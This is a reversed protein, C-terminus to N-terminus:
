ADGLIKRVTDFIGREGQLIYDAYIEQGAAPMGFGKDKWCIWIFHWGAARAGQMDNEPSDGVFWCDEAAAGIKREFAHFIEPDPKFINIDGSAIINEEPIFKELQLAHYKFRQHDSAGNTIIGTTVQKEKLYQLVKRMEPLLTMRNQAEKYVDQFGQARERSLELGLARYTDQVRLINMEERTIEGKEFRAFEVESWYRSTVDVQLDTVGPINGIVEHYAHMYADGRLYLTDDIDFVFVAM